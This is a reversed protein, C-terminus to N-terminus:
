WDLGLGLWSSARQGSGFESDPASRASSARWRRFRSRRRGKKIGQVKNKKKKAKKTDRGLDFNRM